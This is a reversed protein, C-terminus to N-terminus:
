LNDNRCNTESRFITDNYFPNLKDRSYIVGHESNDLMEKNDVEIHMDTMSQQMSIMIVLLLLFVSQM